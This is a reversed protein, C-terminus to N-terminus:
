VKAQYVRDIIPKPDVNFQLLVANEYGNIFRRMAPSDLQTGLGFSIQPIGLREKEPDYIWGMIQGAQSGEFELLEYVENLFLRGKRKLEMEAFCQKGYLWFRNKEANDEFNPNCEDFIRAYPDIDCLEPETEVNDHKAIEEGAKKTEDYDITEGLESAKLASQAKALQSELFKTRQSLGAIVSSAALFRGHLIGFAKAYCAIGAITLLATPLYGLVAKTGFTVALKMRDNRREAVTYTKGNVLGNEDKKADFDEQFAVQEAINEKFEAKLEEYKLRSKGSKVVAGIVCISGAIFWLRPSNDSAKIMLKNLFGM